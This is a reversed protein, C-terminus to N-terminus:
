GAADPDAAAPSANREVRIARLPHLDQLNAATSGDELELRSYFGQVYPQVLGSAVYFYIPMVPFEDQVLIAEAERLLHMRLVASARARAAADPARRVAALLRRARAPEKLRPLLSEPDALVVSVDSAAGILRDFDASSWGTNNNGGNTVWLDLFTNPDQYDGIWGARAMDYDRALVTALYSQWEQNYARVEIALHRRLQDAIVEAVKKHAESTNYLIGVEPFGAGGPYGAEALLARARGRDFGLASAPAEYSPMGPPVLHAAPLQGLGLVEEVILRRDIALGIAQRVRRDDFPPRECNFRYYYVIMAPGSYFDPRVRLRDVLDSPYSSPLWDVQGTLYLNLATTENEIALADVSGLQVEDRGWYSDSRLLRIRDNVRWSALRFPGNSVIKGPLFWDDDGREVAWRPVPFTPYFSTIELFYATPAELEVVLTREDRAFVGADVGFRLDAELALRRLRRAESGLAEGIRELQAPDLRGERRVLVRELVPDRADALAANVHGEALFRQWTATDVGDPHDRRLADLATAIPGELREAHGTYTSFARALRVAHLIYAYESGLAPDLLRRWAYVFDGATVPRGDTWVADERLRFVYTRGDPSISWSQAVGPVPRMTRADRRTLGEFIADAIRGEPQGTMRNPDLTQPETGNIFRFDAPAEASASLTLDVVALAAAFVALLGWLTRYM